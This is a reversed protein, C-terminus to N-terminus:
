LEVEMMKAVRYSSQRKIKPGSTIKLGDFIRDRRHRLSSTLAQARQAGEAKGLSAAVGTVEEALPLLDKATVYNAGHREHWLAVFEAWDDGTTELFEKETKLNELFGPCGANQLIGGIVSQWQSFRWHNSGSYEPCGADQWARVITLIAGCVKARNRKIFTKPDHKFKRQDPNEDNPDLRIVLSRSAADETLTANNSTAVWVCDTRVTVMEGTGTLRDHMFEETIASDLASSNLSGKINDLLVHSPGAVLGCLISKRWEEPNAKEPTPTPTTFPLICLSAAYSKGSGRLPASWLHLPTQGAVLRRVFPLIIQAVAHSRSAEDAFPVEGLITELILSKAAEITEPTPTTDPLDFNSPLSLWTKATAHYGNTACLTGDAAFFPATATREIPPIGRWDDPTALYVACLDRPPAVERIGERETTSIWKASKGAIGQVAALNAPRIQPSGTENLEVRVMGAAGHFLRPAQSNRRQIANALDQLEDDQQRNNTEIVPLGSAQLEELQEKVQEAKRKRKTAEEAELDRALSFLEAKTGGRAYFDDLGTKAGGPGAPLYVIKVIAGRSQLFAALRRLANEVKPNTAVDSDFILYFVRGKCTIYEWEPLAVIGGKANRGRFCHIGNLVIVFSGEQAARDGKKIGETVIAPEKPDDLLDRAVPPIDLVPPKGAPLVYKAKKIPNDPRAVYGARKGTHDYSPLILCRGLNAPFGLYKLTAKDDTTFYGRAAITEDNLGSETRLIERHDDALTGNLFVTEDFYPESQAKSQGNVHGNLHGTGNSHGNLHAGNQTANPPTKRQTPEETLINM